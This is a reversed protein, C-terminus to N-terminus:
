LDSARFTISVQHSKEELSPGRRTRYEGRGGMDESIDEVSGLDDDRLHTRVM